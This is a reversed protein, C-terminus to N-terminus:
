QKSKGQERSYQIRAAPNMGMIVEQSIRGGTHMGGGKSGSGSPMTNMVHHSNRELGIWRKFLEQTTGEVREPKGEKDELMLTVRTEYHGTPKGDDDIIESIKAQGEMEFLMAVQSANCLKADGFSSMIDNKITSKEFRGKWSNAEEDRDKWKKEYEAIKKAANAQAREEASMADLRLKELEAKAQSGEGAEKELTELLPKYKGEYEDKVANRTQSITHGFFTELEVPVMVKQKSVPDMMEKYQGSFKPAGEGGAGDEPAFLQMDFKGFGLPYKMFDKIM